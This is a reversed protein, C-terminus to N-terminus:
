SFTITGTGATFTTIKDSGDTTTTSTLGAGVNCTQQNSYRIVVLGSGGNAAFPGSPATGAFSGGGGSGTNSTGATGAGIGNYGAGGGGTGADHAGNQMSGGGGGGAVVLYDITDDLTGTDTVNFDSSSTFIHARYVDGPSTTYDSIVGGTATHGSPPPPPVAPDNYIDGQREFYGHAFLDLIGGGVAGGAAGPNSDGNDQSLGIRRGLYGM